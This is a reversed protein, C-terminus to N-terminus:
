GLLITYTNDFTCQIYLGANADILKKLIEVNNTFVAVHLPNYHYYAHNITDQDEPNAKFYSM